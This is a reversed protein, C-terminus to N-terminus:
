NTSHANLGVGVNPSALFGMQASSALDVWCGLRAPRVASKESLM